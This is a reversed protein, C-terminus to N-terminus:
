DVSRWDSTGEFSAQKSWDPSVAREPNLAAPLVTQYVQLLNPISYDWALQTKIRRIGIAGLYVRRCPDDMLQALANAFGREDNRPVYVAAAQATFRHEPLDFAVIPRALAMYEMIKVMTSCDSYPNSPASDVCIDAASLYQWLAEGFVFGTFRVYEELGLRRALDMLSVKADGGGILICYFDTRGLDYRLHHLARLLYDVGDQHGMVGVYGIIYRGMQRLTSDPEVSGQLRSLEIGNRVITIREESVRGREM